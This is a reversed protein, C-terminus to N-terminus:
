SEVSSITGYAKIFLCRKISSLTEFKIAALLVLAPQYVIIPLAGGKKGAVKAGGLCFEYELPPTRESRCIHAAFQAM